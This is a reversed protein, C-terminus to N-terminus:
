SKLEELLHASALMGKEFLKLSMWEDPAHANEGPLGFGMLLVPADLIREFEPVIPISGGEGAYVPKKGFAMELAREAAEYIPGRINARWSHGAQFIKVDVTVGDPAVRRIHDALLQNIRDPDQGAVLRASIKAMAWSPLVTKPGEGTYGSLMGNIEVTPRLWIREATTYGKEGVLASAGTDKLFGQEDFPVKATEERFADDDIGDYFGPIAVHRDADHFTAIIRALATAPNAVAGGYGGSHLDVAPGTVRVEIYSLGRLSSGITPVDEGVMTTDSIICYDCALRQAHKKVFPMLHDSGVEEEGEALFVVNVPLRGSTKLHAEVGCVHLFLQGKDDVSGRAYVRGDRVSPEFPPTTWLELPEPPQVDYHGYILVTPADKGAGRWEGIVAPHGGTDEITAELGAKEMRDRLWEAARQMDPKHESRASVSPIRLFDFLETQFRELNDTLYKSTDSM